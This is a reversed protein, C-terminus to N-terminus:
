FTNKLNQIEEELREKETLSAHKLQHTLKALKIELLTSQVVDNKQSQKERQEYSNLNGHFMKVQKNEIIILDTAIANIFQKNHSVFIITGEYKKMLSILAETSPVDLYNTPEDLAIVNLDSLLLIALSLKIKEGGSLASVPKEMDCDTFLLHALILRVVSERQVSNQFVTQLVTKNTSLNDFEQYLFGLRVSPVIKIGELQKEICHLLTTKGCGNPGIIGVKSRNSITFTADTFVNNQNYSFNLKESRILIKNEPPATLSFDMKIQQVNKPKEIVKLHEIRSQIAKAQREMSKQRGDNSRSTSVYNRTKYDSSNQVKKKKQTHKAKEKKLSHAVTLRKLESQYIEYDRQETLKLNEYQAKYDSYNGQFSYLTNDRLEIIRNCFEDLLSIDHSVLIFSPIKVLKKKFLILGNLDLNSTPEDLLCLHSQQSFTEALRLRTKEGGSVKEQQVKKNVKLEKLTKIDAQNEYDSFQKFYSVEGWTQVKGKDSLINGHIIELLTTKGSGNLGILGVRDGTNIILEPFSFLLRDGYSKEIDSLKLIIM